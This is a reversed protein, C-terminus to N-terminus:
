RGREHRSDDQWNVASVRDGSRDEPPTQAIPRITRKAEEPAVPVIPGIFGLLTGANHRSARRRTKIGHSSAQRESGCPPRIMTRRRVPLAPPTSAIHINEAM